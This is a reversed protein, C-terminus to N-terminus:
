TATYMIAEIYFLWPAACLPSFQQTRASLSHHIWKDLSFFSEERKLTTRKGGQECQVGLIEKQRACMPVHQIIDLEASAFGKDRERIGGFINHLKLLAYLCSNRRVRFRCFNWELRARVRTRPSVRALFVDRPFNAIKKKASQKSLPNRNASLIHAAYRYKYLTSVKWAHSISILRPRVKDGRKM